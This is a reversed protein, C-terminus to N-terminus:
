FRQVDIWNMLLVEAGAAGVRRKLRLTWARELTFDKTRYRVAHNAQHLDSLITDARQSVRDTGPGVGDNPGLPDSLDYLACAVNQISAQGMLRSIEQVVPLHLLSHHVEGVAPEDRIVMLAGRTGNGVRTGDSLVLALYAATGRIMALVPETSALIGGRADQLDQGNPSLGAGITSPITIRHLAQRAMVEGLGYLVVDPRAAMTDSCAVTWRNTSVVTAGGLERAPTPYACTIRPLYRFHFTSKLNARAWQRARTTTDLIMYATAPPGQLIVTTAYRYLPVQERRFRLTAWDFRWLTRSGDPIRRALVGDAPYPFAFASVGLAVNLTSRSGFARGVRLGPRVVAHSGEPEVVFIQRKSSVSRYKLRARGDAGTQRTALYIPVRGPLTDTFVGVVAGAVDKTATGGRDAEYTCRVRLERDRSGNAEGAVAPSALSVAGLLVVGVRFVAM